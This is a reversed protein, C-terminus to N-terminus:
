LSGTGLEVESLPLPSIKGEVFFEMGATRGAKQKCPILMGKKAHLSNPDHRQGRM